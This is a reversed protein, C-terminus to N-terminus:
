ISDLIVAEYLPTEPHNYLLFNDFNPKKNEQGFLILRSVSFGTYNVSVTKLHQKGKKILMDSLHAPFNSHEFSRASDECYDM